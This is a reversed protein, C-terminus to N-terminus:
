FFLYSSQMNFSFLKRRPGWGPLAHPQEHMNLLKNISIISQERTYLGKPAFTNDGADDMIKNHILKDIETKVKPSINATDVFTPLWGKTQLKAAIATALRSLVFAIEERTLLDAPAFRDKDVAPMIGVYAIKQIDINKADDSYVTRGTIRGRVSEFLNVALSAFEGRTIPQNYDSQLEAPVLGKSIADDLESIYEKLSIRMNSISTEVRELESPLFGLLKVIRKASETDDQITDKLLFGVADEPDFPGIEIVKGPLWAPLKKFIDSTVIINGKNNAAIYEEIYSFSVVNVFILLWMKDYNNFWTRFQDRVAGAMDMDRDTQTLTIGMRSLFLRASEILSDRTMADARWIISYKNESISNYAYEYASLQKGVGNPGTLLLTQPNTQSPIRGEFLEKGIMEPINRSDVYYFKRPLLNHRIIELKAPLLAMDVDYKNREINNVNSNKLTDDIHKNKSYRAKNKKLAASKLYSVLLEFIKNYLTDVDDDTELGFDVKMQDSTDLSPVNLFTIFRDKDLNSLITSALPRSIGRASFIKSYTSSADYPLDDDTGEVMANSFVFRVFEPKNMIKGISEVHNYYVGLLELFGGFDM